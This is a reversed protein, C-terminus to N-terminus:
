LFYKAWKDKNTILYEPLESDDIRMNVERRNWDSEKNAVPHQSAEVKLKKGGIANFHWGGDIVTFETMGDTRIHNIIGDKITEYRCCTTGTWGLWDEDTRQNFFYLYPKQKPKIVEDDKPAYVLKPNWIEDIDSIFVIDDDACFDLAKRLSEKQYFERVWWHEGVGTCPSEVATMYIDDDMPFDDVVHYIIKDKWKAFREADFMLERPMGGFTETCEVIVFKDVCSDLINLRVELLDLENLLYFSDIVM